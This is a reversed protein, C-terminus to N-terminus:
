RLNKTFFKKLVPIGRKKAVDATSSTPEIGLCPINASVFNKLLYGDNSAIEIVYSKKDLSLKKIIQDSYKKAHVLWSKSTSSFYPYKSNFIKKINIFDETQVLWCKECVFVRLPYKSEVKNLKQKTLYNNSLPSYGLDM